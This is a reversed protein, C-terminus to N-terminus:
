MSRLSRFSIEVSMNAGRFSACGRATSTFGRILTPWSRTVGWRHDGVGRRYRPRRARVARVYRKRRASRRDWFRRCEGFEAGDRDAGASVCRVSRCAIGCRSSRSQRRRPYAILLYRELKARVSDPHAQLMRLFDGDARGAILFEASLPNEAALGRLPPAGRPQAFYAVIQEATPAGPATTVLLEVVHNAPVSDPVPQARLIPSLVVLAISCRRIARPRRRLASLAAVLLTFGLGGFGYGRLSPLETPQSSDDVVTFPVTGVTETLIGGLDGFYERDVRLSYSGSPYAGIAYTATGIPINCLIPDTSHVGWFVARIDGGQRTIRPYGPITGIGDCEGGHSNVSLVEGSVPDAPTVYPPDLFADASSAFVFCSVVLAAALSTRLM